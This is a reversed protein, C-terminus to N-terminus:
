RGTGNFHKRCTPCTGGRRVLWYHDCDTTPGPDQRKPRVMTLPVGLALIAKPDGILATPNKLALERAKRAEEQTIVTPQENKM